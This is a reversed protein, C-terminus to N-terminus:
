RGSIVEDEDIIIRGNGNQGEGMDTPVIGKMQGLYYDVLESPSLDIFAKAALLLVGVDDLQGVGLGFDPIFDFPFLLYLISFAPILKLYIPVDPDRFLYYVLQAKYLLEKLLGVNPSNNDNKNKM